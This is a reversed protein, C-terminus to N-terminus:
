KLKAKKRRGRRILKLCHGCVWEERPNEIIGDCLKLDYRCMAVNRDPWAVHLLTPWGSMDSDKVKRWM